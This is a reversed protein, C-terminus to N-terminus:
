EKFREYFSYTNKNLDELIEQYNISSEQEQERISNLMKNDNSITLIVSLLLSLIFGIISYGSTWVIGFISLIAVVLLILLKVAVDIGFEIALNNISHNTLQEISVTQSPLTYDPKMQVTIADSEETFRMRFGKIRKQYRVFCDYAAQETEHSTNFYQSSKMRWLDDRYQKSLFITQFMYKYGSIFGLEKDGFAEVQKEFGGEIISQLETVYYENASIEANEYQSLIVASSTLNNQIEYETALSKRLSELEQNNCSVLILPILLIYGYLVKHM